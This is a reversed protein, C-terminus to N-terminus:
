SPGPNSPFWPCLNVEWLALKSIKLRSCPSVRPATQPPLAGHVASGLTHRYYTGPLRSRDTTPAVRPRAEQPPRITHTSM